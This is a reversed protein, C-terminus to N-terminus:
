DGCIQEFQEMDVLEPHIILANICQKHAIADTYYGVIIAGVIMFGIFLAIFIIVKDAKDM